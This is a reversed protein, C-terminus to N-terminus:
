SHLFAATIGMMPRTSIKTKRLEMITGTIDHTSEKEMDCVVEKLPQVSLSPATPRQMYGPYASRPPCFSSPLYAFSGANLTKSQQQHQSTRGPSALFSAGENTPRCGRAPFFAMVQM